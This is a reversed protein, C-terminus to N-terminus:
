RIERWNIVEILFDSRLPKFYEILNELNDDKRIDPQGNGTVTGNSIICGFLDTTGNVVVNANPSSAYFIAGFEDGTSANGRLTIANGSTANSVFLVQQTSKTSPTGGIDIRGEVIIRVPVSGQGLFRSTGTQTFNGLIHVTGEFITLSTGSLSLSNFVCDKLVRPTQTYGYTSTCNVTPLGSLDPTPLPLKNIGSLTEEKNFVSDTLYRPDATNTPDYFYSPVDGEPLTVIGNATVRGDVYGTDGIIINNNSHINGSHTSDVVYTEGSSSQANGFSINSEALISYDFGKAVRIPRRVLLELRRHFQSNEKDPLFSSVRVKFLDYHPLTKNGYSHLEIESKNMINTSLPIISIETLFAFSNGKDSIKFTRNVKQFLKTFILSSKQATSLNQINELSEELFEALQQDGISTIISDPENYFRYGHFQDNLLNSFFPNNTFGDSIEQATITINNIQYSNPLWKKNSQYFEKAFDVANLVGKNEFNLNNMRDLIQTVLTESYFITKEYKENKVVNRTEASLKNMIVGSVVIIMSSFLIAMILAVGKQKKPYLMILGGV